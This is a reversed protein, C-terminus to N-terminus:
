RGKPTNLELNAVARFEADDNFRQAIKQFVKLFLRRLRNSQKQDLLVQLLINVVLGIYFDSM